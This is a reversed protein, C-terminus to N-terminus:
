SSEKPAWHGCALPSSPFLTAQARYTAWAHPTSPSIALLEKAKPPDASAKVSGVSRTPLPQLQLSGQPVPAPLHGCARDWAPAAM